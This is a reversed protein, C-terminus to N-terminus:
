ESKETFVKEIAMGQYVEKENWVVEVEGTLNLGGKGMVVRIRSTHQSSIKIVNGSIEVEVVPLLTAALYIDLVEVGNRGRSTPSSSIYSFDTLPKRHHSLLWNHVLVRDETRFDHGRGPVIVMKPDNGVAQLAEQMKFAYSVPVFFSVIVQIFIIRKM